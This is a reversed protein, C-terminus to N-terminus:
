YTLPPGSGMTLQYGVGPALDFETGGEVLFVNPDVLAYSMRTVLGTNETLDNVAFGTRAIQRATGEGFIERVSAHDADPVLPTSIFKLAPSATLSLEFVGATQQSVGTGDTRRIRYFRFAHSLPNASLDDAFTTASDTAAITAITSWALGDDYADTEATEIDYSDGSKTNFTVNVSTSPQDWYVDTIDADTDVSAETMLVPAAGPVDANHTWLQWITDGWAKLRDFFPDTQVIYASVPLTLNGTGNIENRLFEIYERSTTQYYLKVEVRAAGPMLVGYDALAVEDYGGAYEAATFYDPASAGHWVPEALRTAANAIDFGKPPIRIDKERGTALAFHFTQTEGTLASTPHMEYVLEDVYFENPDLAPSNPSYAPDLGKLTDAADDYPNVAYLRTNLADYAEVSVFMRRGEPFGSILKHGTQNQVRFTVQGTTPNYSFGQIAAAHQLNQRARDAGALLAVPDIGEGATMDLTLAAPGQNLLGDNTADYNPSGSVASALVFSVWANGGTMDHVPQGSLPHEVSEDPRIPVGNQECAKGVGDPMHCDQCKAIYNNAYSTTFVDPAYPGIGPAGGQAAYASLMFESTTREVHYYSYAPNEETPLVTTGDGPTTGNFALNALAPNSVDHCTSCFHKSKHFRSYFMSHRAAADAFPARKAGDGSVYFQGSGAEDYAPSFPENGSYFVNGNFMTVSSALTADEAYTANAAPQSPTSSANTEDWYAAWDSGERTGAYTGEFFPDYMAHCFACHVGDFDSGAMASANTPDSRGELWGEPYHCRECIDVANPRDIAWASDQGAVTVCAYFLFDRAAQAMMSGKWNFGPEVSPDSLGAHCNMCQRPGELTVLGPQTGPMRVLPDDAVPVPTWASILLSGATGLAAIILALPSLFVCVRKGNM